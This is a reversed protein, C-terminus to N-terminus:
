PSTDDWLFPCESNFERGNRANREDETLPSGSLIEFCRLAEDSANNIIRQILEPRSAALEGLDNDELRESLLSNQVRIDQFANQIEDFDNVIRDYSGRLEDMESAIQENASSLTQVSSQLTANNATLQDIKNQTYNVYWYTAASIAALLGAIILWRYM